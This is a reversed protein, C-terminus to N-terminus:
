LGSGSWSDLCSSILQPSVAKEDLFVDVLSSGMGNFSAMGQENGDVSVRVGGTTCDFRFITGKTAQGGKSRVGQIILNELEKVDAAPGSYRPKVGEAIAGAITAADAKFVMELVFTTTPSTEDFTRAANKLAIKAEQSQKGRPFASMTELVSPSSYAAVSYVNIIAKKRVGVGVLYLGDQLKPNFSVGTAKDKISKMKSEVAEITQESQAAAQESAEKAAQQRAEEEVAAAVALESQKDEAELSATAENILATGQEESSGQQAPDVLGRPQMGQSKVRAIEAEIQTELQRIRAEVVGADFTSPDSLIDDPLPTAIADPEKAAEM